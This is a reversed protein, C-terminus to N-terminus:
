TKFYIHAGSVYNVQWSSNRITKYSFASSVIFLHSILGSHGLFEMSSIHGSGKDSLPDGILTLMSWTTHGPSGLMSIFSLAWHTKLEKHNRPLICGSKSPIWNRSQMKGQIISCLAERNKEWRWFMHGLITSKPGYSCTPTPSSSFWPGLTNLM